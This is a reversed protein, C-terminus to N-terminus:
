SQIIKTQNTTEFMAKIQWLIHPLGEWHSINESPNFGGVLQQNKDAMDNPILRIDVSQPTQLHTPQQAAVHLM